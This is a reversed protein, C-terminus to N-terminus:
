ITVCRHAGGRRAHPGALNRPSYWTAWAPRFRTCKHRHAEGAPLLVVEIRRPLEGRRLSRRLHGRYEEPGKPDSAPSTFLTLDFDEGDLHKTVTTTANVVGPLGASFRRVAALCIKEGERVIYESLRGRHYLYGDDDQDFVDGSALVGPLTGTTRRGDRSSASGAGCSRTPRPGPLQRRGTGDGLDELSVQTGALPLGVSGHRGPPEAHAALTSVRPGAQTLGYTLYLERDPRLRLSARERSRRRARRGRGHAGASRGRRSRGGQLLARVFVPTLSSVTVGREALTRLYTPPHFPPGSVVLRGGRVLTALAQAVLSFSFYLPLNVLMTDDDRLGIADAHRAANRLLGDLGFVCGSAFGSTGSTLMVVEGACAAPAPAKPFWAVEIGGITEIREPQSGDSALRVAGPARAGMVASLERLRAAPTGPPVLAPVGGASLLGFFHRLLGVGNSLGLLVLDGPRLGLDRWREAIETVLDPRPRSPRSAPM